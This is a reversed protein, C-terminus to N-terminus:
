RETDKFFDLRIQRLDSVVNNLTDAAVNNMIFSEVNNEKHAEMANKLHLEMKKEYSLILYNIKTYNEKM